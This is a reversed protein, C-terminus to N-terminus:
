SAGRAVRRYERLVPAYVRDPVLDDAVHRHAREVFGDLVPGSAFASLIVAAFADDDSANPATLIAAAGDPLEVGSAATSFVPRRRLLAELAVLPNGEWRSTMLLADSADLEAVVDDSTGPFEVPSDLRRAIARAPELLPGDGLWRATVARHRAVAAVVRVFREPDKQEVLRGIGLLRLPAGDRHAAHRAVPAPGSRHAPVNGITLVRGADRGFREIVMRSVGEGVSFVVASRFSLARLRTQPLVTHAHEVVPVGLVRGIMAAELAQRRQHAHLIRPRRALVARALGGVAAPGTPLPEFAVGSPLRDALPGDPAAITVDGGKGVLWSALDIAVNQAGGPHLSDLVHLSSPVTDGDLAGDGVDPMREAGAADGRLEGSVDAGNM